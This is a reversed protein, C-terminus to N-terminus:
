DVQPRIDLFPFRHPAGAPPPGAGLLIIGSSRKEVAGGAGGVTEGGIDGTKGTKGGAFATGMGLSGGEFASASGTLM